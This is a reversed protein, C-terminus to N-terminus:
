KSREISKLEAKNNYKLKKGIDDIEKRATEYNDAKVDIKHGNEFIYKYIKM